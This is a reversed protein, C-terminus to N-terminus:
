CRFHRIVHWPILGRTNKSENKTTQTFGKTFLSSDELYKVIGMMDETGENM